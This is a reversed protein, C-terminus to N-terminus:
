RHPVLLRVLWRVTGRDLCQERIQQVGGLRMLADRRAAGPSMGRRVNDAAHLEVHAELEEALARDYEAHNVSSALQVLLARLSRLM